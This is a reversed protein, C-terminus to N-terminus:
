NEETANVGRAAGMTCRSRICQSGCASQLAAVRRRKEAACCSAGDKDATDYVVARRAAYFCRFVVRRREVQLFLAVRRAPSFRRRTAASWLLKTLVNDSTPIPADNM